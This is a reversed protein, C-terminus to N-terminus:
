SAPRTNVAVSEIWAKVHEIDRGMKKTLRELLQKEEGPVYVLDDDTLNVNAEKLLEKVEDWSAKLHLNYNDMSMLYCYECWLLEDPLINKAYM